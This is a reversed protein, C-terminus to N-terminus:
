DPGERSSPSPPPREADRRALEADIQEATLRNPSPAIRPEPSTRRKPLPASSTARLVQRTIWKARAAEIAVALARGALGRGVTFRHSWGCDVPQGARPHDAPRPPIEGKKARHVGLLGLEKAQTIARQVTRICCGVIKALSRRFKWCDRHTAIEGIVFARLASM